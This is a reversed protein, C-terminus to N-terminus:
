ATKEDPVKVAISLVRSDKVVIRLAAVSSAYDYVTTPGELVSFAKAENTLVFRAGLVSSAESIDSGVRISDLLRQKETAYASDLERMLKRFERWAFRGFVLTGVIAGLLPKPGGAKFDSISWFIGCVFYLTAGTLVAFLPKM